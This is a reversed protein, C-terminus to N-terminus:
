GMRWRLCSHVFAMYQGGRKEEEEEKEKEREEERGEQGRGIGKGTKVRM